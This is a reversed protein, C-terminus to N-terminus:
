PLGGIRQNGSALRRSKGVDFDERQVRIMPEAGPSRRPLARGRRRACRHEPGVYDSQGCGARNQSGAVVEYIVAATTRLWDLLGAVDAFKRFALCRRRPRVTRARALGIFCSV